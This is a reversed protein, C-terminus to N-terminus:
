GSYGHSDVAGKEAQSKNERAEHTARFSPEVHHYGLGDDNLVTCNSIGELATRLLMDTRQVIRGRKKERDKDSHREYVLMKMKTAM